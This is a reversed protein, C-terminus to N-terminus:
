FFSLSLPFLDYGSVSPSLLLLSSRKNPLKLSLSTSPLTISCCWTTWRKRKSERAGSRCNEVLFCFNIETLGWDFLSKLYIIHSKYSILRRRRSEVLNLQNQHLRHLRVIKRRLRCILYFGYVYILRVFDAILCWIVYDPFLYYWPQLSFLFQLLSPSLSTFNPNQKLIYM